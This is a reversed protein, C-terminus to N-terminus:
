RGCAETSRPQLSSSQTQSAPPNTLRWRTAGKLKVEKPSGGANKGSRKLNLGEPDARRRQQSGHCRAGHVAARGPLVGRLLEPQAGRRGGAVPAEGVLDDQELPPFGPRQHVPVAVPVAGDVEPEVVWRRLRYHQLLPAHMLVRVRPQPVHRSGPM